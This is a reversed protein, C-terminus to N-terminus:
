MRCISDVTAITQRVGNMEPRDGAQRRACGCILYPNVHKAPLKARAIPTLKWMGALVVPVALIEPTMTNVPFQDM